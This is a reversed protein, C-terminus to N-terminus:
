EVHFSMGGRILYFLACGDVIVADHLADFPTLAITHESGALTRLTFTTHAAETQQWGDPLIGSVRVTEMRLYAAEFAAYSAPQGNKSVAMDYIIEGNEDTVLSNDEAVRPERSLQYVDEGVTMRELNALAVM